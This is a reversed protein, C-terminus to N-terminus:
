FRAAPPGLSQWTWDSTRCCVVPFVANTGYYKGPAWTLTPFAGSSFSKISEIGAILTGKNPKPGAALLVRELVLGNAYFLFREAPLPGAKGYQEAKAEFAAFSATDVAAYPRVGYAGAASDRAVGSVIDLTLGYMSTWQPKFDIAQADRLIGVSELIASLAVVKVGAQELRLLQPTFSQANPEASEVVCCNMGDAKAQAIFAKAAEELAATDHIYLVGIKLGGHGRKRILSPLARAGEDWSTASEYSDDWQASVARLGGSYVTTFGAKDLCHYSTYYTSGSSIALFSGNSQVTKCAAVGGEPSNENSVKKVVVKRGYIGGRRNVDEVWTEMGRYAINTPPGYVGSFSGITSVTITTATVGVSSTNGGGSGGGGGTGGQSSGGSGTGGAIGEPVHAGPAVPGNTGTAVGTPAGPTTGPGLGNGGGPAGAATFGNRPTEVACGTVAALSLVLWASAIGRRHM